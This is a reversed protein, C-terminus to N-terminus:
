RERSLLMQWSSLCREALLLVGSSRYTDADLQALAEAGHYGSIECRYVCFMCDGVVTYTGAVKGFTAEESTWRMTGSERTAPTIRYATVFEVPPSGLVKLNGSLLWLSPQHTIQTVGEAPISEGDGRWFTGRALWVAPEFLFTHRVRV